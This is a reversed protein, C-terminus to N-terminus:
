TQARSVDIIPAFVAGMPASIQPFATHHVVGSWKLPDPRDIANRIDVDCSGRTQLRLSFWINFMLECM